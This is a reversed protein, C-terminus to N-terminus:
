RGAGANLIAGSPNPANAERVPSAPSRGEVAGSREANECLAMGQAPFRWWGQKGKAPIPAPLAAIDWLWWAWRGPSWDGAALEDETVFPRREGTPVNEGIRVTGLICGRPLSYNWACGFEDYCLEALEPTIHRSAPLAAAAHIAVRPGCHKLPARYGRTEYNKRGAFVLSAWPQWLTIVPITLPEADVFPLQNM